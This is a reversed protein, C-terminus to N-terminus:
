CVEDVAGLLADRDSALQETTVPSRQTLLEAAMPASAGPHDLIGSLATVAEIIWRSRIARFQPSGNLRDTIARGLRDPENLAARWRTRVEDIDEPSMRTETLRAYTRISSSRGSSRMPM